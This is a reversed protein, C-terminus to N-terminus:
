FGNWYCPENRINYKCGTKNDAVECEGNTKCGGGFKTICNSNIESCLENNIRVTNANECKKIICVGYEWM